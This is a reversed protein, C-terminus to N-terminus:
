AGATSPAATGATGKNMKIYNALWEGAAPGLTQLISDISNGQPKEYAFTSQGLINQTAEQKRNMAAQSGAYQMANRQANLGEQVDRGARSLTEGTYSSNGIGQGRFQGTIGPIINEQFGRYAPNAVNLDFNENAADANWNYADANPGEGRLGAVYEEYLRQQTPDLTSRRKPKKKKGGGFLGAAGGIVAGAATGYGPLISSGLMAGSVAGSAGAGYDLRGM